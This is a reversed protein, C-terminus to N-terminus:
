TRLRELRRTMGIKYLDNGFSGDRPKAEEHFAYTITPPLNLPYSGLLWQVFAAGAVRRAHESPM